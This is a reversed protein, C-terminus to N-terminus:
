AEIAYPWTELYKLLKKGVIFTKGSGPCACLVVKGEADLFANQEDTLEVM